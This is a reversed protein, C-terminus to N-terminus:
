GAEGGDPLAREGRTCRRRAPRSPKAPSRVPDLVEYEARILGLAQRALAPSDAAVVAIADGVCRTVEGVAVMTPWDAVVSGIFRKGPIDQAHPSSQWARSARPCGVCRAVPAPGAPAAARLVAGHLMGPESLDDVYRAEGRAKLEADVRTLRAGTGAAPPARPPDGAEHRGPRGAEGRRGRAGGGRDERVRHMPLSEASARRPGGRRLPDPNRDLLAKAALVMGPTCFGCQVAGAESFARVYVDMEPGPIGEITVISRGAIREVPITCSSLLAGDVIVSCAGCAGEGCSLKAGTLRAEERLFSLLSRGAEAEVAAGNLTFRVM